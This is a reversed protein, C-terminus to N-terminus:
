RAKKKPKHAAFLHPFKRKLYDNKEAVARGKAFRNRAQRADPLTLGADINWPKNKLKRFKDNLLHNLSLSPAKQKAEHLESSIVLWASLNGQDGWELPRGGRKKKPAEPVWVYKEIAKVIDAMSPFGHKGWVETLDRVLKSDTLLQPRPRDLVAVYQSHSIGEDGRMLRYLRGWSLELRRSHPSM